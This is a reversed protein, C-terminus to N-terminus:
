SQGARILLNAKVQTGAVAANQQKAVFGQATIAQVFTDLNDFTNATVVINIQEDRFDFSDLHIGNIKKLSSGVVALENLLINKHAQGTLKKLKETMREQPAVISTAAPFNQKYIKNIAVELTNVQHHLIFFSVVNSLVTVILASAALGASLIWTKKVRSVGQKPQYRGQLLNIVPAQRIWQASNELLEQQTQSIENILLTNVKLAVSQNALHYLHLCEPKNETTYLTSTLCTALNDVDCAFGSYEGTRISSINNEIRGQWNGATLPLAFTTPIMMTPAIDAQQLLNLWQQMKQQAVIAVPIPQNPQHEGIAFHLESVDAILQEELAFPLAQLLRQRNMKPLTVSTLVTDQGPVIATVQAQKAIDTLATLQGHLTTHLGTEDVIIWSATGTQLSNCDIIIHKDKM